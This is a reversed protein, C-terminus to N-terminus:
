AAPISRPSRSTESAPLGVTVSASTSATSDDFFGPSWTGATASLQVTWGAEPAAPSVLDLLQQRFGLALGVPLLCLLALPVRWRALLERYDGRSYTLSFALWAANESGARRATM